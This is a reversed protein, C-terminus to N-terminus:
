PVTSSWLTHSQSLTPGEGAGVSQLDANCGLKLDRSYSQMIKLLWYPRQSQALLSLNPRWIEWKLHQNIILDILRTSGWNINVQWILELDIEYLHNHLDNISTKNWLPHLTSRYTQIFYWSIVYIFLLHSLFLLSLYLIPGSTTGETQIKVSAPLPGCMQMQAKQFGLLFHFKNEKSM